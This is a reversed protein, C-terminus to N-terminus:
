AARHGAADHGTDREGNRTQEERLTVAIHQGIVEGYVQGRM